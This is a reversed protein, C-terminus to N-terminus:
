EQSKNFSNLVTYRYKISRLMFVLKKKWFLMVHRGDEEQVQPPIKEIPVSRFFTKHCRGVRKTSPPKGSLSGGLSPAMKLNEQTRQQWRGIRFVLCSAARSVVSLLM